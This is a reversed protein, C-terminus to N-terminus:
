IHKYINIYIYIYIYIYIHTHTHTHIYEINIYISIYIHTFTLSHPSVMLQHESRANTTAESDAEDNGDDDSTHESDSLNRGANGLSSKTLFNNFSRSKKKAQQVLVSLEDHRRSIVQLAANRQQSTTRLIKLNFVSENFSLEEVRDINSLEFTRQKIKQVLLTHQEQSTINKEIESLLECVEDTSVQTDEQLM